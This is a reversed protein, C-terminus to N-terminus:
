LPIMAMSSTRKNRKKFKKINNNKKKISSGSSGTVEIHVGKWDKLIRKGMEKGMGNSNTLIELVVHIKTNM